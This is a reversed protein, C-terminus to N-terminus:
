QVVKSYWNGHTVEKFLFLILLQGSPWSSIAASAHLGDGWASKAM